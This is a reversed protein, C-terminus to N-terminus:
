HNKVLYIRAVVRYHKVPDNIDQKLELETTSLKEIWWMAEGIMVQSPNWVRYSKVNASYTTNVEVLENAQFNYYDNASGLIDIKSSRLLLPYYAEDFTRETSARQM